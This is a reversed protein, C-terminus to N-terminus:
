IAGTGSITLVGESDLTWTLNSGDGEAGCTGSDVIDAALATAPLLLAIMLVALVFSLLRKRMHKRGIMKEGTMKNAARGGCFATRLGGFHEANRNFLTLKNYCKKDFICYRKCMYPLM